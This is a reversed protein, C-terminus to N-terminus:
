RSNAGLRVHVAKGGLQVFVSESIEGVMGAQPHFGSTEDPGIASSFISIM